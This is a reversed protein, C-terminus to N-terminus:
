LSRLMGTEGHCGIYEFVQQEVELVLVEHFLSLRMKNGLSKAYKAFEGFIALHTKHEKSWRELSALNDFYALGFTRDSGGGEVKGTVPDVIEMFRCSFCGVEDGHDRLFEMGKILPPQMSGLYLEREEGSTASWDQGSRIVTLNKKGSVRVRCSLGEHTKMRGEGHTRDDGDGLLEDTQSAPLRDRMSGWYLHERIPGSLSKRMHSAGEPAATNFVTEFREATPLFVELFWGHGGKGDGRSELQGWWARFGSSESWTKYAETSPWYAFVAVNYYGRNDTVAAVEHFSPRSTPDVNDAAIFSNIKKLGGGDNFDASKYQVGIIAMTIDKITEPFRSAYTEFPPTFGLPMKAPVTRDKRLWEPIASELAM